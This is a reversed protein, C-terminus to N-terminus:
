EEQNDNLTSFKNNTMAQHLEQQCEFKVFKVTKKNRPKEFGNQKSRDHNKSSLCGLMISGTQVDRWSWDEGHGCNSIVGLQLFSLNYGEAVM